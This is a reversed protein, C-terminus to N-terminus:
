DAAALYQDIHQQTILIVGTDITPPTPLGLSAQWLMLVSISGQMQPISAASSDIIGEKIAELIPRIGDMAVVTIEGKKGAAKIARAIGIPGSADCCLYGKLDPNSAIVAAAQQYATEIDDNDVGGDIISIEPYKRLLGVQAEYRQKHNPASPYGQMIAVKGKHAILKLLREAAILGQHAFNTGVSTISQDYALSDFLVLPVGRSKIKTVVEMEAISDVPDLAIGQPQSALVKELLANQEEPAAFSPPLFEIVLEMGTERSLIEAQTRAGVHVEEFWPHSVKPVFVFRLKKKM